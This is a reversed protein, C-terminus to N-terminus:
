NLALNVMYAIAIFLLLSAIIFFAIAITKFILTKM